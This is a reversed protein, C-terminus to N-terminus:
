IVRNTKDELDILEYKEIIANIDLKYVPYNDIEKLMNAENDALVFLNYQYSIQSLYTKIYVKWLKM